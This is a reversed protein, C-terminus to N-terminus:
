PGVEHAPVKKPMAHRRCDKGACEIVGHDDGCVKEVGVDSLTAGRLRFPQTLGMLDYPWLTVGTPAGAAHRRGIGREGREVVHVLYHALKRVLLNKGM